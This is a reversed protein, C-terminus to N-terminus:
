RTKDALSNKYLAADPYNNFDCDRADFSFLWNTQLEFELSIVVKASWKENIFFSRFNGNDWVTFEAKISTYKANKDGTGAQIDALSNVYTEPNDVDYVFTVVYYGEARNYQVTVEKLTDAAAIHKTIEFSGNQSDNFVPVAKEKKQINIILPDWNAYPIGNGDVDNNKVKEYRMFSDNKAAYMRETTVVDTTKAITAGLFSDLIPVSNKIHYVESFYEYQSKMVVSDIDLYNPTNSLSMYIWGDNYATMYDAKKANEACTRYLYLGFAKEDQNFDKLTKTLPEGDPRVKLAVFNHPNDLPKNTNDIITGGSAFLSAIVSVGIIVLVLSAIVFVNGILKSLKHPKRLQEAKFEDALTSPYQGFYSNNIEVYDRYHSKENYSESPVYRNKQTLGTKKKAM